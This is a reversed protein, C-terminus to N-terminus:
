SLVVIAEQLAPASRSGLLILSGSPRRRGRHQIGARRALSEPARGALDV